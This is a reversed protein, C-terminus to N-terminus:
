FEHLVPEFYPKAGGEIAYIIADMRSPQGILIDVTALPEGEPTFAVEVPDDMGGGCFAEVDTGDPRCRFIRAGEGTLPTAGPRQITYGHRGDTWYLRGDPGLFPGHIDAANGTFGFRTVLERRQDARGDGDRDVLRWLSPPSATYLAGRYWLVGMPMTMRDAFITSKDFRGDGDTDELLRIFSPPNKLLADAALNSGASEAVFLRGRDDFCAMMPHGVLPPAAVQEVLFGEPVRIRGAEERSTQRARPEDSVAAAQLTLGACLWILLITALVPPRRTM